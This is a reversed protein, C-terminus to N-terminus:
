MLSKQITSELQDSPPSLNVVVKQGSLITVITTAITNYLLQLHLTIWTLEIILINHLTKIEHTLKNLM